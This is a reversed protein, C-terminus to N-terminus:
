GVEEIANTNVLVMGDPVRESSLSLLVMGEEHVSLVAKFEETTIIAQFLYRNRGEIELEEAGFVTARM